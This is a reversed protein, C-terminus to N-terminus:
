SAQYVPYVEMLFLSHLPGFYFIILSIMLFLHIKKFYDEFLKKITTNKKFTEMVHFNNDTVLTPVM